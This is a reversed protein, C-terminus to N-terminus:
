NFLIGPLVNLYSQLEFFDFDDIKRPSIGQFHIDRFHKNSKGLGNEPNQLCINQEM